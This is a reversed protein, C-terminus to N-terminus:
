LQNLFNIVSEKSDAYGAKFGLSKLKDIWYQQYESPKKGTAKLELFGIKSGPLVIIRDPVGRQGPSAWKFAEGKRIFTEKICFREIQKETQKKLTM